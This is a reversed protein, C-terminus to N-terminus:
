PCVLVKPGPRYAGAYPDWVPQRQYYCGPGAAYAPAGYGPAPVVYAPPPPPSNAIASGIIAGAALGGIIGAGVGCGRCYADAPSPAAIVVALSAAAAFAILTKKM